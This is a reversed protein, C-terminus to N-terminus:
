FLAPLQQLWVYVARGILLNNFFNFKQYWRLPFTDDLRISLQWYLTSTLNPAATDTQSDMREFNIRTCFVQNQSNKNIMAQSTWTNSCFESLSSLIKPEQNQTKNIVARSPHSKAVSSKRKTVCSQLLDAVRVWELLPFVKKVAWRAVKVRDKAEVPVPLEVQRGPHPLNVFILNIM